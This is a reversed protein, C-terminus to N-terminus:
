AASTTEAALARRFTEARVETILDRAEAATSPGRLLWSAAILHARVAPGLGAATLSQKLEDLHKRLEIPLRVNREEWPEGLGSQEAPLALFRELDEGAQSLDRPGEAELVAILLRNATTLGGAESALRALHDWIFSPLLVSTQLSIRRPTEGARPQLRRARVPPVTEAPASVAGSGIEGPDPGGRKRADAADAQAAPEAPPEGDRVRSVLSDTLTFDVKGM